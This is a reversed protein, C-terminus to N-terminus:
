TIPLNNCVSVDDKNGITVREWETQFLKLTPTVIELNFKKITHRHVWFVPCVLNLHLIRCWRMKTQVIQCGYQFCWLMHEDLENIGDWYCLAHDFIDFSYWYCKINNTSMQVSTAKLFPWSMCLLGCDSQKQLLLWALM